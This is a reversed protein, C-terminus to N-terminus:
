RRRRVLGAVGVLGVMLLATPEPVATVVLNDFRLNAGAGSGANNNFVVLQSIGSSFNNLTRGSLTQSGATLTYGGLSDTLAIRIQFSNTTYGFGTSSPGTQDNIQYFSQGGSFFFTAMAQNSANRLFFGVSGGSQVSGNQFNLQVYDGTQNLTRNIGELTGFPKTGAQSEAGSNAFLGWQPNAFFNGSNTPSSNSTFLDVAGMFDGSATADPNSSPSNSASYNVTIIGASCQSVLGIAMMLGFLIKKM